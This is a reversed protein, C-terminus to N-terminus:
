AQSSDNIGPLLDRSLPVRPSYVVDIRYVTPFIPDDVIAEDMPTLCRTEFGEKDFCIERSPLKGVGFQFFYRGLSDTESLMMGADTITVGPLVHYDSFGRVTGQLFAFSEGDTPENGCGLVGSAGCVLLGVM